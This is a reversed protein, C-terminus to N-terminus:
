ELQGLQQLVDSGCMETCGYVLSKVGRVNSLNRREEWTREHGAMGAVAASATALLGTASSIAKSTFKNLLESQQSGGSSTPPSPATAMSAPNQTAAVGRAAKVSKEILALAATDGAAHAQSVLAAKYSDVESPDLRLSLCCILVLRLKDLVEGSGKLMAEVEKKVNEANIKLGEMVKMELDFFVPVDRKSVEGMIRQLLRTHMELRKKEELLLPLSEVADTLHQTSDALDTTKSRIAEEAATIRKLES